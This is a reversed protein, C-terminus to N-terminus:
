PAFMVSRAIVIQKADTWAICDNGCRTMQPVALSEFTPGGLAEAIAVTGLLALSNLDYVAIRGTFMAYARGLDVDIALAYMGTGFGGTRVLREADVVAGDTGYIRGQAGRIDTSGGTVLNSFSLNLITGSADISMRTLDYATTGNNYAYLSNSDGAFAIRGAFQTVLGQGQRPVGNDFITVPSSAAALLQGPERSVAISGARGPMVAVDYPIGAPAMVITQEVSFSGLNVRKVSSSNRDTVYLQSEDDSIALAVPDAGVSVSRLVTATLPDIEVVRGAYARDTFRVSAYLRGSRQARAIDMGDIDLAVSSGSGSTFPRVQFQVVNSEGVEPASNRVDITNSGVSSFDATSLTASLRSSSVYSTPRDTRNWRVVAGPVFGSGHVMMAFAQGVTGGNTPISRIRPTSGTITFPVPNSAGGGPGANTVVIPFVGARVLDSEALAIALTGPAVLRTPRVGGNYSVNSSALFGTGTIQIEFGAQGAPTSNQRLSTIEPMPARVEFPLALTRGGGPEAVRVYMTNRQATRTRSAPVTVYMSTRSVYVGGIYNEEGFYIFGSRSFNTGTLTIVASDAGLPIFTPAISTLTPAPRLGFTFKVSDSRSTGGGPAPNVVVPVDFPGRLTEYVYSAELRTTSLYRTTIEAGRFRVASSAIFGTGTLSLFVTDEGSLEVSLVRPVPNVPETDDKCAVVAIAVCAVCIAFRRRASLLTM